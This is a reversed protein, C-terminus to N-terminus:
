VKALKKDVVLLREQIPRLPPLVQLLMPPESKPPNLPPSLPPPLEPPSQDSYYRLTDTKAANKM